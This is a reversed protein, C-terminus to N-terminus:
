RGWQAPTKAEARRAPSHAMAAALLKPRCKKPVMSHLIFNFVYAYMRVYVCVSM